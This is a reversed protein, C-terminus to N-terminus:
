IVTVPLPFPVDGTEDLPNEPGGEPANGDGDGESERGRSPFREALALFTLCSVGGAILGLLFLFTGQTKM